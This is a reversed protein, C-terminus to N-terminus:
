QLALAKIAMAKIILIFILIKNSRVDIKKQVEQQKDWEAKKIRLLARHQTEKKSLTGLKIM